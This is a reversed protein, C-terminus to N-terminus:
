LAYIGRLHHDGCGNKRYGESQYDCLIWVYDSFDCYLNEDMYCNTEMNGYKGAYKAGGIAFLISPLMGIVTLITSIGMNGIIIGNLLTVIVAQSATVQAIKDSAASIIYCQLPRNGKLVEIM